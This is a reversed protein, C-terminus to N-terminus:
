FLGISFGKGANARFRVGKFKLRDVIPADITAHDEGFRYEARIDDEPESDDYKRKSLSHTSSSSSPADMLDDLINNMDDIMNLLDDIEEERKRCTKKLSKVSKRLSKNEERLQSNEEQLRRIEDASANTFADALPKLAEFLASDNHNM